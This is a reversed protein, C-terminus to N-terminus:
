VEEPIKKAIIIGDEKWVMIMVRHTFKQIMMKQNLLKQDQNFLQQQFLIWLMNTMNKESSKKKLNIEMNLTGNM